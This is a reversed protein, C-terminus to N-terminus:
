MCQGDPERTAVMGDVNNDDSNILDCNQLDEMVNGLNIDRTKQYAITKREIEVQQDEIEM